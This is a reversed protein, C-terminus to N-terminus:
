HQLQVHFTFRRRYIGRYYDNIPCQISPSLIGYSLGFVKGVETHEICRRAVRMGGVTTTSMRGPSVRWWCLEWTKIRRSRSRESHFQHARPNFTASLCLFQSSGMRHVLCGIPITGDWFSPHFWRMQTTRGIMHM